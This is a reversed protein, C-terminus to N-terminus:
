TAEEILKKPLRQPLERLEVNEKEQECVLCKM